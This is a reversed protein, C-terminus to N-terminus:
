IDSLLSRNKYLQQIKKILSYDLIRGNVIIVTGGIIEKRIQIDLLYKKNLSRVFWDSIKKLTQATPEFALQLILIPLSDLEQKLTVIFNKVIMPDKTDINNKGLTTLFANKVELTFLQEIKQQPSINTTFISNILTDLQNHFLLAQDKTYIAELIDFYPSQVPTPM